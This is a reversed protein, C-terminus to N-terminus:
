SSRRFITFSDRWAPRTSRSFRKKQNTYSTWTGYRSKAPLARMRRSAIGCPGKAVGLSVTRRTVGGFRFHVYVPKGTAFGRATYTIRSTPRKPLPKVALGFRVVEFTTAAFAAPNASDLGVLTFSELTRRPSSFAPAVAMHRLSGTPLVPTTGLPVPTPKAKSGTVLTVSAGPTFGTGVIPMTAQGKVYPVCAATTLTAAGAPAAAAASLLAGIPLAALARRLVIIPAESRHPPRM